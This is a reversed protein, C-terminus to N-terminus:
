SKGFENKIINFLEDATSAELDHDLETGSTSSTGSTGWRALLARLGDTIAAREAESPTLASSAARWRGLDDLLGAPTPTDDPVLEALLHGTLATVSPYDFVLTAPLRLGTQGTLRNRLEVATLSDFGLQEFTRGDGVASVSAHGLVTAVQRRILELVATEREAPSLRALRTGLPEAGTEPRAPVDAAAGRRRSPVDIAGRLLPRVGDPETGTSLRVPVLVADTRTRAADFLALGEPTALRGIGLRSMRARDADALHGTMGSDEAWLGWALSTAPLGRSRRHQALGDLFANAAAYNAQGPVGAVGAISSFLVFMGLDADRTLEHLHWAADSKPRMVADLSQRTLSTVLGDDLLGAAHVVGTLPRDAPVQALLGALADRDAVDCAAVTVDAGLGTLEEVLEGAGPAGAGRRSTLLLNRVGHGTVLHRATLAGLTGTGGTILVTGGPDLAAPMLLVVKGVHRAQSLFRFAEPARGVEWTRVPLRRLAGREFLALVEALMAHIREPIAEDGEAAALRTLDFWRYLVDPHAAAVEEPDRLDTKGIEVFRGGKPLLDLSADVFKGALSNLVVDVGRGGTVALFRDRFELTRSSAIHDDDLGLERLTDWKGPSATAFVEAGLHRALQVAAMGVGGAGAHVLVAEGARLGALDVLGYYATLFVTAISAADGFSWGDPMPALSRRDTDAVPGFAGDFLGLVRDGERLGTVGPGVEVVVGAAEIGMLVDPEPYMGLSVLVDRFNLGAARVAVRVRGPGPPGSAAPCEVLALNELTGGPTRDLRWRVADSPPTLVGTSSARALRPTLVRGARIALQTDAGSELYGALEATEMPPADADLDVLAILGPQEAQAARVMGWIAAGALDPVDGDGDVTVAGRTTVILRAGPSRNEALWARIGALVRWAEARVEDPGTAATGAPLVTVEAAGDPVLSGAATPVEAWELGFLSDPETRVSTVLQDPSVPRFVLSRASVVPEGEADVATISVADTGAPAVRVRMSSAGAAHLELGSWSFPLRLDADGGAGGRLLAAHLAADLLAPHLLFLAADGRAEEPLALEAFVEEGRRWLARLGRFVPGYHYGREALRLYGEEVDVAVAGDPPWTGGEAVPRVPGDAPHPSETLTGTAHLTWAAGPDGQPASHVSVARTGPEAPAEVRVQVRAGGREPLVLPTRLTLEEIVDHGVEDGARVVMDVLATGPLVPAHAVAHDALWPHTELSVTGTLVTEVTGTGALSLVAGLLPHGTATFGLGSVDGAAASPALWYPRRQFPYTPLDVRRAPAGAFVPEWNVPVGRVWTRALSTLFRRPGEENRRLSGVVLADDGVTDEVGATLVPHPSVEVFVGHGEDALRRVAQEFRVTERLNRFWYGADLTSTDVWDGTVTSCFGVTGARPTVPRLAALLEEAILEVQPSHSAYDVAIRRARVGESECAAALEDLAEPEGAVVVASPGNVVALSLRGAWRAIRASADSSSLAVSLLGGAGSLREAVIRSRLVVIRTADELSLAGAVYAAAIEGQSHGVVADPEVGYSRWLGALGVMVAFLAPQVVDVRELSPAGPAGRLVDTLKWDVFASLAGECDAIVKAFAPSWELLDEAMGLWQSGQGPFIFVTRGPDTAVGEVVEPVQEGEATAALARGLEHRDAVVAVARHDFASRLRLLSAAVDAPEVGNAINGGNEANEMDLLTALRGAAARLAEESRGSLVVPVVPPVSGEAAADGAEPAEELIVHVNSGSIGFSSVGARRSHGGREWPVAETLLRVAGASWDVHPSPEDVHLTKPLTAHRLAQVMKIVGGIGAAAQAHGINSKLSGLWLPEPRTRGYTALLAHAEIPDGLATGTGHGEVVDVEHAAVGADALAQRIVRQQASGNPATLGNSAGDSNTATGRVLALVPHGNRRADSLRELLVMGAGEAWATGNAGAAYARCRGDAALGRQRSFEVFMGPTAMVAVGGALAAECEGRRLAQVALHLALLSSSCATDVTMAPGELGLTYAIRGSAVSPSGGTLLYGDLGEEPAHLPPGYSQAMAGVFVGTRTGRLSGPVVGARELAEWSTELLLRQQPDMATAERPSIGFFAPDFGSVDDLFGGARTYSTGLRDADPAYLGDLDWGRDTPFESIADREDAVLRWLDEPSAVGGPFRCGIGVIAIPEDSGASVTPEGTGELTDAARSSLHEALALCTPHDFLLTTPLSLGTAAVLQNRLEVTLHSDFGLEKFTRGTDVLEPRPHGLVTAAHARVLELTPRRRDVPSSPEEAAVPVETNTNTNAGTDSNTAADLWYRERQFAYTPLDVRRAGSGAFMAPWDVAVGRTWLRGVARTLAEPDPQDKRVLSVFLAADQAEMASLAASPGAEIFTTVGEAELTRVADGFRVPERVQRVWYEPSAIEGPDALHGTLTSVLPIRPRNWVVSELVTRFEALMPDMRASHFAHSVRLRKVRYKGDLQNLLAEVADEDGSVVVSVPGNVAALGVRENLYPAIDSESTAIAAMAGGSALSQMLRGRAEVVRCADELSWVGAVHAAAIEGVSHGGVFDPTVGWSELLRFLAVEFAFLGQQTYMTQDILDSGGFLVEKVSSACAADFAEAFVPFAAYLGSGMGARQAGQGSFVVACRGTSSAVDRSVEPSVGDRALETLAALLEERDGGTVVARHTLSARTTTLSLGIDLPDLGPREGVFSLLREAQERLAARGNGSVVWPVLGMGHRVPEEGSAPPPGSLVVHCNTGGMGFSSVGALVPLDPRPWPGTESQVRLNLSELPIAPNPTEYNRSAPLEGHGISLAVKLLGVIGAAGELHGVNTKASGVALPHGPARAAGLVAGLAAAEVPDGVRTGTGHLEVYQIEGPEVGARECALRIVEEQAGGRPVTLGAGGGDNNVASGRIVCRIEDGDAVADALRKLLVLGGGEGRVYGNARADFVFCRGDPSLAGFKAASVTSEPALNLSVGGALALTSEGRLLSECALHVAVLSSSQGTDMTMSPGALGFAYSIRNAIIGRHLGTLTHQTIAPLGRRHLLTAYDDAVAGVFVGTRSGSLTDPALGADELVEWSLELMLRQQPDMAVAERPSIGFLGADFAAVDDLFGGWRTNAKGAVTVDRDYLADADWRGAPVETIADEGSRLLRWFAAPGDAHPLRASLGIIAILDNRESYTGPTNKEGSGAM